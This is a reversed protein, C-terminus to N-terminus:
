EGSMAVGTDESGLLSNMVDASIGITLPPVCAFEKLLSCEGGNELDINYAQFLGESSLVM